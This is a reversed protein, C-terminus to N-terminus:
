AAPTVRVATLVADDLVYSGGGSDSDYGFAYVHLTTAASLTFLGFGSFYSDHNTGDPELAGAGVNLLDGAFSANKVQDYVFFQPFVQATDGSARPTAKARLSLLYTGAALPVGSGVETSNANFGGGTAVDVVGGTVLSHEGASTVGSPGAPGTDGKSGAAGKAGTAGAPGTAGLVISTTGSPCSASPTSLLTVVVHGSGECAYAAKPAPAASIAAEAAGGALAAVALAVLAGAVCLAVTRKRTVTIKRLKM